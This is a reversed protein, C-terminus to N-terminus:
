PMIRALLGKGQLDCRGIEGFDQEDLGVYVAVCAAEEEFGPVGGSVSFGAEVYGEYLVVVTPSIKSTATSM